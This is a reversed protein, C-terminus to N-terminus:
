IIDLFKKYEDKMLREAAEIVTKFYEPQEIRGSVTRVPLSGSAIMDNVCHSCFRADETDYNFWEADAAGTKVGFLLLRYVDMILLDTFAQEYDAGARSMREDVEALARFLTKSKIKTDTSLETDTYIDNLARRNETIGLLYDSTVDYFDCVKVLFDLKCERIGNEYHSLLAQSIGLEYAAEKQSLNKEKRLLTLRESIDMGDGELVSQLIIIYEIICNTFLLM